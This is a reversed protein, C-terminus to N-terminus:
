KLLNDLENEASNIEEGLENVLKKVEGKEVKGDSVIEKVTDVIKNSIEKMNPKGLNEIMAYLVIPFAGTLLIEVGNFAFYMPIFYHLIFWFLASFGFSLVIISKNALHRLRDNQIKGTLKKIPKKVLNLVFYIITMLVGMIVVVYLAYNAILFNFVSKIFEIVVDM